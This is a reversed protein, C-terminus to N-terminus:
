EISLQSFVVAGIIIVAGVCERVTPIEGLFIMAMLIGYVMEMSSIVGAKRAGIDKLSGIFLTHALATAPVGLLALFVFDRAGPMTGGHVVFPLLIFVATAQEHFAILTGGYRTSLFRNVLTMAAYMFASFIGVFGGLSYNNEMSFEPITIVMGVLIVLALIVNRLRLREHFFLPELFTAFLPFSSFTVVGIAVTSIQISGLFSWWHLALLVGAGVLLGADKRSQIRFSQGAVSMFIGLAVFSFLVRWFTMEMASLNIWRTFLGIMGFLFVALNVHLIARTESRMSKANEEIRGSANDGSQVRQM